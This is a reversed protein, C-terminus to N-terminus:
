DVTPPRIKPLVRGSEGLWPAYCKSIGALGEVARRARAAKSAVIRVAVTSDPSETDPWFLAPNGGITASDAEIRGLACTATKPSPSSPAGAIAGSRASAQAVDVLPGTSCAARRDGLVTTTTWFSDHTPAVSSLTPCDWTGCISGPTSTTTKPPIPKSNSKGLKTAAHRSGSVRDAVVQLSSAPSARAVAALENKERRDSSWCIWRWAGFALM